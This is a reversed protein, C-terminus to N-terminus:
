SERECLVPIIVGQDNGKLLYAMGYRLGKCSVKVEDIEFRSMLSLLIAVGAVIIDARGREMGPIEARESTPVSILTQFIGEVEGKKLDMGHVASPDFQPLKLKMAGITTVTGGIGVMCDIREEPIETWRRRLYEMMETMENERPPDSRLFEDTLKVAGVKFSHHFTVEGGRGLIVETSGGGIDTVAIIGEPLTLDPDRAVSIFSLRAEEEGSIIKLEIGTNRRIMDIFEDSNRAERLASTGLLVVRKVNMRRSLDIYKLIAKATRSMAESSLSGSRRLGEGLRTIIAEDRITRLRDSEIQCILLLVSNTGVDIVAIRDKM